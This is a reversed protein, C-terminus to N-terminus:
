SSCTRPRTPPKKRRHTGGVAARRLEDKWFALDRMWSVLLVSTSSSPDNIASAAFRSTLWNASCGLTNTLLVLSQEAPLDLYPELASPTRNRHSSAMTTLKSHCAPDFFCTLYPVAKRLYTDFVCRAICTFRRIQPRPSREASPSSQRRALTPTSISSSEILAPGATRGPHRRAPPEGSPFGGRNAFPPPPHTRSRKTKRAGIWGGGVRSPTVEVAGGHIFRARLDGGRTEGRRVCWGAGRSQRPLHLLRAACAAPTVENWRQSLHERAMCGRGSPQDPAAGQM